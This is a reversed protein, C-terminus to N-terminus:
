EADRAVFRFVSAVTGEILSLPFKRGARCVLAPIAAPVFKRPVVLPQLCLDGLPPFIKRREMQM